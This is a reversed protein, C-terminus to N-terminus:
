GQHEITADWIGEQFGDEYGQKGAEELDQRTFISVIVHAPKNDELHWEGHREQSPYRIGYARM